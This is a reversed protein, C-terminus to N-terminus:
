AAKLELRGALPLRVPFPDAIAAGQPWWSLFSDADPILGTILPTIRGRGEFRYGEATWTMRLRGILLKTIISRTQMPHRQLLGNWDRLKERLRAELTALNLSAPM